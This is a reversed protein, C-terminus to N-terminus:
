DQNLLRNIRPVIENMAEELSKRGMFVLDLEPNIYSDRIFRWQPHFPEYIVYEVARNLMGKNLPREPCGAWYPGEAIRRNAPQALGTKALMIQGEDGSLAKLVKWAEEPHETTKLIGYGSGGTGFNRLGTPGKPFMAVDWDFDEIERFLPTQWIGSAYMAVKGAVFLAHGGWERTISPPPAVRYKHILDVYFQLGEMAEPQDLLSKTPYKVDDVLRGGHAYVFNEWYGSYFGYQKIRGNEVITLKKAKELLDALDWDDEPHDVGHKDFLAKNYYVVAFPATDRPIAYLRGDVRFRDVVEPFFDDLPFNDREIFPNLNLFVDRAVLDVFINVECFIIDPAVGGAIQTLVRTMYGGIPAHELRVRIGPHKEDWPRITNNIIEVEKPSGWFAVRITVQDKEQRGCGAVLCAALISVAFIIGVFKKNKM